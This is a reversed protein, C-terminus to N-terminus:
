LPLHTLTLFFFHYLIEMITLANFIIGVYSGYTNSEFVPLNICLSAFKPHEAFTSFFRYLFTELFLAFLKTIM